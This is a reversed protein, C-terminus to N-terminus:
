LCKLSGMIQLADLFGQRYAKEELISSRNTLFDFAKVFLQLQSKNLARELAIAATNHPVPLLSEVHSLRRNLFQNFDTSFTDKM